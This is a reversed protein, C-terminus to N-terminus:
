IQRSGGFRRVTLQEGAYVAQTAVLRAIRDPTSVWGPVLSTRSVTETKLMHQSIVDAGSTGAPIDRAAVLVRVHGEGHQVNKKYNTVYFTTFTAAFLALVVAIVINRFQHTM